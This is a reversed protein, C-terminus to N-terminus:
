NGGRRALEMTLADTAGDENGALLDLLRRDDASM